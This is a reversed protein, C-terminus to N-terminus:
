GAVSALQELSRPKGQGPRVVRTLTRLLENRKSARNFGPLTSHNRPRTTKCSASATLLYAAERNIRGASWPVDKRVNSRAGAREGMHDVTDM